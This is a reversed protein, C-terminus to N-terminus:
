QQVAADSVIWTRITTAKQSANGSFAPYMLGGPQTVLILISNANGPTVVQMVGGYSSLDVGATRRGSNHCPICDSNLIPAIDKVYTLSTSSTPSTPTTPTTSSTTANSSTDPAVPSTGGGCALTLVLCGGALALVSLRARPVALVRPM